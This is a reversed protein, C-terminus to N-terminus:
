PWVRWPVSKQYCEKFVVNQRKESEKYDKTSPAILTLLSDNLIRILSFIHKMMQSYCCVTSMQFWNVSAAINEQRTIRLGYECPCLEHDVLLFKTWSLAKMTVKVKDRKFTWLSFLAREREAPSKPRWL